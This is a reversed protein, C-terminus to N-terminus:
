ASRPIDAAADAPKAPGCLEGCEEATLIRPIVRCRVGAAEDPTIARFERADMYGPLRDAEKRYKGTPLMSMRHEATAWTLAFWAQNAATPGDVGDVWTAVRRGRKLVEFEIGGGSPRAEVKAEAIRSEFWASSACGDVQRDLCVLFTVDGLRSGDERFRPKRRYGQEAAKDLIREGVRLVLGADERLITLHLMGNAVFFSRLFELEPSITDDVHSAGIQEAVMKILKEHAVISQGVAAVISTKLMQEVSISKKEYFDLPPGAFDEAHHYPLYAMMNNAAPKANIGLNPLWLSVEDSVGLRKALRWALGQKGSSTCALARLEAALIRLHAPEVRSAHYADRLLFVADDFAEILDVLPRPTRSAGEVRQSPPPSPPRNNPQGGRKKKSM